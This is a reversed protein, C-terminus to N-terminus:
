TGDETMVQHALSERNPVAADRESLSQKDSEFKDLLIIIAIIM